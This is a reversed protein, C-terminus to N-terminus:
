WKLGEALKPPGFYIYPNPDDVIESFDSTWKSIGRVNPLYMKTFDEPILKLLDEWDQDQERLIPPHVEVLFHTNRNEILEKCGRLAFVEPGDIDMKVLFPTGNSKSYQDLMITQGVNKDGAFVENIKWRDKSRASNFKLFISIFNRPQFCHMEVNRELARILSPFFGHASGVDFVTSNEEVNDKLWKCIEPEHGNKQSLRQEWLKNGTDIGMTITVGDIIECTKVTEINRLLYYKEILRPPLSHYLDLRSM